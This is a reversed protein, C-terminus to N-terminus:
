LAQDDGSCIGHGFFAARLGVDELGQELPDIAKFLPQLVLLTRNRGGRRIQFGIIRWQSLLIRTAVCDICGKTQIGRTFGLRRRRSGPGLCILLKRSRGAM